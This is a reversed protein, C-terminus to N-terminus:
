DLVLDMDDSGFYSNSDQTFTPNSNDFKKSRKIAQELDSTASSRSTKMLPSLDKFGNTVEYLYYLKADFEVPNTKRDQILKTEFSDGDGVNTTISKYIRDQIAKNVPLGKILEKSNYITNKLQNNLEEVQKAQEAAARKNAEAQAALQQKDYQKISTLSERADEILADNGAAVVRQLLKQAREAPIGQNIYDQYIVKKSLELDESLSNESISDLTLQSEKHKALQELPIGSTIAEYGEEGLTEILRAKVNGDIENRIATSIDDVSEIKQDQLNLSPLLGQEHLVNALSSYLNPSNEDDGGENEDEGAVEESPSNDEEGPENDKLEDPTDDADLANDDEFLNDNEDAPTEEEEAQLFEEPINDINLELDSDQFLSMNLDENGEM